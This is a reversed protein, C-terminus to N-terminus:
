GDLPSTLLASTFWQGPVFLCRQRSGSEVHGEAVVLNGGAVAHKQAAWGSWIVLSEPKCPMLPPNRPPPPCSLPGNMFNIMGPTMVVLVSKFCLCLFTWFEPIHQLRASTQWSKRRPPSKKEERWIAKRFWSTVDSGPWGLGVKKGSLLAPGRQPHCSLFFLSPSVLLCGPTHRLTHTHTNVLRPKIKFVTFLPLKDQQHAKQLLWPAGPNEVESCPVVSSRQNSQTQCSPSSRSLHIQVPKCPGARLTSFM